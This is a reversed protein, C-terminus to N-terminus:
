RKGIAAWTVDAANNSETWTITFGDADFSLIVGGWINTADPNFEIANTSADFIQGALELNFAIGDGQADVFGVSGHIVPTTGRVIIILSTPRFGMGTVAQDGSGASGLRAGTVINSQEAHVHLADANSADTLTELEAVTPGSNTVIDALDIYNLDGAVTAVHHDTASVGPLVDHNPIGLGVSVM